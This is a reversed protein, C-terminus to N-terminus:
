FPETIEAVSPIGGQSFTAQLILNFVTRNWPDPYQGDPAKLAHLLNPINGHHWCVVVLKAQFKAGDLLAEALAGYDQDAYTADIPVGTAKSLPKVTEYPRASHRSISAAFLYDPKGFKQPIFTALEGARQLGTPTLDPDNPDDSKEAHRMVLISNPM